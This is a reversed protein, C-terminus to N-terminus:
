QSASNDAQMRELRRRAAAEMEDIQVDLTSDIKRMSAFLRPYYQKLAGYREATTSALDAKTKLERLKADELAKAKAKQFQVREAATTEPSPTSEPTIQLAMSDDVLAIPQNLPNNRVDLAIPTAAPTPKAVAVPAPAPTPVAPADDSNDVSGGVLPPLSSPLPTSNASASGPTPPLSEITKAEPLPALGPNPTPNTDAAPEADAPTPTAEADVPAKPRKKWKPKPTATPAIVPAPAPTPTAKKKFIRGLFGPKKEKEVPLARPIAPTPSPVATEAQLLGATLGSFLLALLCNRLSSSVFNFM